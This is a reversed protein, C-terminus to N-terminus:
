EELGVLADPNQLQPAFLDVPTYLVRRLEPLGARVNVIATCAKPLVINLIDNLQLSSLALSPSIHGLHALKLASSTNRHNVNALMHLIPREYVHLSSMRVM